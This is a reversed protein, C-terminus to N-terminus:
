RRREALLRLVLADTHLLRRRAHSARRQEDKALHLGVQLLRARAPLGVALQAFSLHRRVLDAGV